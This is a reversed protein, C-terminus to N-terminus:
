RGREAREGPRQQLVGLRLHDHVGNAGLQRKRQLVESLTTGGDRTRGLLGGEGQADAVKQIAGGSLEGAPLQLADREGGREDRPRRQHQEILWGGLEVRHGAILQDPLQSAEVLLGVRGHQQDLVAELAAESRGVPHDHEGVARNDAVAVRTAEEFPRGDVLGGQLRRPRPHEGFETKSRRWCTDLLRARRQAALAHQREGPGGRLGRTRLPM